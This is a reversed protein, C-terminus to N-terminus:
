GHNVESQSRPRSGIGGIRDTGHKIGELLKSHKHLISQVQSAPASYAGIQQLSNVSGHVSRSPGNDAIQPLFKQKLALDAALENGEKTLKAVQANDKETLKKKQALLDNLEKQVAALKTEEATIDDFVKKAQALSMSYPKEGIKVSLVDNENAPRTTTNSITGGMGIGAGAYQSTNETILKGKMAERIADVVAGAAHAHDGLLKISEKRNPDNAASEANAADIRDQEEKRRAELKAATVIDLAKQAEDIEMQAIQKKSAGKEKALEQEFKAQERMAKLAEETKDSLNEQSEALSKLWDDFEQASEAANKMIEAHESFKATTVDMLDALNKAEAETKEFQRMAFYAATGVAILAVAALGLPGLSFKAAAGEAEMAVAAERAAVAKERDAEAVARSAIAKEGDIQVARREMETTVRMDSLNQLGTKHLEDAARAAAASAVAKQALAQALIKAEAANDKFLLKLVGLQGMLISLSGPVRSWNGRGMERMLVMTERIAGSSGMHASSAGAINRQINDGARKSIAEVQKFERAMQSADATIVARLGM